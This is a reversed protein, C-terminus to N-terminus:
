QTGANWYETHQVSEFQANAESSWRKLAILCMVIYVGYLLATAGLERSLYLPIAVVDVAIWVYWCQVAKRVQLWIAAGSLSVVLADFYSAPEGLLELAWWLGISGAVGAAFTVSFYTAKEFRASTDSAQHFEIAIHNRWQFAGVISASLFYLQLLANLPLEARWFVFFYASSNIAGVPWSLWQVRPLGTALLLSVSILGSIVGLLEIRSSAVQGFEVTMERYDWALVHDSSM